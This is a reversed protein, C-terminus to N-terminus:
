LPTSFFVGKSKMVRRIKENKISMKAMNRTKSSRGSAACVLWIFLKQDGLSLNLKRSILEAKSRSLGKKNKIILCLHKPDLGLDKAFARLSYFPNTVKRFKLIDLLIDAYKQRESVLLRKALRNQAYKKQAKLKDQKIM